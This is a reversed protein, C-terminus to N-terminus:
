WDGDGFVLSIEGRSISVTGRLYLRSRRVHYDEWTDEYEKLIKEQEEVEAKRVKYEDNLNLKTLEIKNM